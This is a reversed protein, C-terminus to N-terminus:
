GFGGAASPDCESEVLGVELMLPGWPSAFPVCIPAANSPFCIIHNHGVVVNPLGLLLRYEALEAKAAGAVMNTLEGIADCVDADVAVVPASLLVSAARIALEESIGLVVSGIAKGSLGVVGSVYFESPGHRRLRIEGREVSCDLMTQFVRNLSKIFPNIYDARM